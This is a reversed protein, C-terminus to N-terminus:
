VRLAWTLPRNLGAQGQSPVKGNERSARPSPCSRCAGEETPAEGGQGEQGLCGSLLSATLLRLKSQALNYKWSGKGLLWQCSATLLGVEM